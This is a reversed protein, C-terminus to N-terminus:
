RFSRSIMGVGSVSGATTAFIEFNPSTRRPLPMTRAFSVGFKMAFWRPIYPMTRMM